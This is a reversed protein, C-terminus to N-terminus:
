IKHLKLNIHILLYIKHIYVLNDHYSIIKLHVVKSLVIFSIPLDLKIKIM